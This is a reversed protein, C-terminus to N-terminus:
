NASLRAVLHYLGLAAVVVILAVAIWKVLAPVPAGVEDRKPWYGVIYSARVDGHHARWGLWAFLGFLLLVILWVVTTTM